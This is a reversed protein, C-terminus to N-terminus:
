DEPYQAYLLELIDNAINKGIGEVECLEKESASIIDKVSGFHSLLRKALVASVNPLGEVIFQQKERLSMPTKGGRIAVQKKDERQERNAMVYLLDATEMANKTTIVPIGFDVTISVISGFIANHSINRKTLLGEGELIL